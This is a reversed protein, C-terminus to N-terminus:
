STIQNWNNTWSERKLYNEPDLKGRKVRKLYSDYSKISMLCEVKDADSMKNWLPLSRKRNLKKNYANWFKEFSLDAPILEVKGKIKGQVQQLHDLTFPFNSFLWQSQALNMESENEYYKLAGEEDFGFVVTGGFSQSKMIYKTIM